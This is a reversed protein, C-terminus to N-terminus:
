KKRIKKLKFEKKNRKRKQNNHNPSGSIHGTFTAITFM